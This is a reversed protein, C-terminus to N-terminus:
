PAIVGYIHHSGESRHPSEAQHSVVAGLGRLSRQLGGKIRGLLGGDLGLVCEGGLGGRGTLSGMEPELRDVLAVLLFQHTVHKQQHRQLIIDHVVHHQHAHVAQPLVVEDVAEIGPHTGTSVAGKVKQVHSATTTVNCKTKHVVRGGLKTVSLGGHGNGIDIGVHQGLALAPKLRGLPRHGTLALPHLEKDLVTLGHLQDGVVGLVHVSDRKTDTVEGINLSTKIGSVPHQTRTPNEGTKLEGVDVVRKDVPTVLSVRERQQREHALQNGVVTLQVLVKHLQNALEGLLLLELQHNLLRPEKHRFGAVLVQREAHSSDM